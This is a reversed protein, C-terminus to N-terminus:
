TRRDPKALESGSDKTGLVPRETPENRWHHPADGVTGTERNNLEMSRPTASPPDPLARASKRPQRRVGNGYRDQFRRDINELRELADLLQLGAERMEDSHLGFQETHKIAFRIRDIAVRDQYAMEFGITSPRDRLEVPTLGQRVMEPQM